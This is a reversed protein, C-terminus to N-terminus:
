LSSTTCDFECVLCSCQVDVGGHNGHLTALHKQAAPLGIASTNRLVFNPCKTAPAHMLCDTCLKRTTLGSHTLSEMRLRQLSRKCQISLCEPAALGRSQFQMESPVQTSCKMYDLFVYSFSCEAAHQAQLISLSNPLCCASRLDRANQEGCRRVLGKTLHSGQAPGYLEM